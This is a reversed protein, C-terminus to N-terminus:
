ARSECTKKNAKRDWGTKVAADLPGDAKQAKYAFSIRAYDLSIQDSPVLDSHSSGGTQYSSVLIDEMKISYFEQQDKGCKRCILGASKIHRGEACALILEPSTKSVSMVFHFPQMAVKGDGGGGGAAHTGTQNEGWSWSEVDIAGKPKMKADETEGKIGDLILFFDVAAM